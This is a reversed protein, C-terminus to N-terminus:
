SEELARLFPEPVASAVAGTVPQLLHESVLVPLASSVALGLAAAVDLDGVVPGNPMM